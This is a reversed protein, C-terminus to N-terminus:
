LMGGILPGLVAALHSWARRLVSRVRREPDRLVQAVQGPQLGAIRSLVVAIREEEVLHHLAQPVPGDGRRAGSAPRGAAASRGWSLAYRYLAVIREAESPLTPQERWVRVFVDQTLSAAQTEEVSLSLFLSYVGRQHREFFARFASVEDMVPEEPHHRYAPLAMASAREM